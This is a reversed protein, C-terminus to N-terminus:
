FYYLYKPDSSEKRAEALFENAREAMVQPSDGAKNIIYMSFGGTTGLGPISPPNMAIVTAEPVGQAAFGFTQGVMANISTPQTTRYKWDSMTAFIVGASSKQSGGLLDFGSVTFVQEVNDKIGPTQELFDKIKDLTEVTRASTAGPPENVAILFIDM